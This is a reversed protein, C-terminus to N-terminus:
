NSNLDMLFEEKMIWLQEIRFMHFHDHVMTHRLLIELSYKTYEPHTVSKAWDAPKARKILNLQKDRLRCFRDLLEATDPKQKQLAADDPTFPVIKPADEKLILGIRALMVEQTEALHSLHESITWYDRIRRQIETPTMVGFFQRLVSKNLELVKLM